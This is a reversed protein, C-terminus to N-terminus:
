QATGKGENAALMWEAFFETYTQRFRNKLHYGDYYMAADIDGSEVHRTMDVYRVDKAVLYISLDSSYRALSEPENPSGDTNPRAAVRVITLNANIDDTARILEPLFSDDIVDYFDGHFKPQQIIGAQDRINAFSFTSEAADTFEQDNYGVLAAGISSIPQSQQNSNSNAIPYISTFAYKIKDKLSLKSLDFFGFRATDSNSLKEVLVSDEAGTFESQRTILDDHFFVFIESPPNEVATVVNWLQLLWVGPATGEVALSVSTSGTLESLYDPDIRTLLLSNGIFVNDAASSQLDDVASQDFPEPMHTRGLAAPVILVVFIMGILMLASSRRKTPPNAYITPETGDPQQQMLRFHIVDGTDLAHLDLRTQPVARVYV